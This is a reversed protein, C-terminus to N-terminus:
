WKRMRLRIFKDPYMCFSAWLKDVYLKLEHQFVLVWTCEPQYNCGNRHYFNFVFCVFFIRVLFIQCLVLLLYGTVIGTQVM